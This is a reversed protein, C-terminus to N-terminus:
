QDHLREEELRKKKKLAALRLAEPENAVQGSAVQRLLNNLIAPVYPQIDEVLRDDYNLDRTHIPIGDSVDALCEAFEYSSDPESGDRGSGVVDAGAIIGLQMIAEHLEHSRRFHGSSAEKRMWKEISAEARARFFHFQMHSRVLWVVREVFAKPYGFRNLLAETMDAGVNDHNYDTLRGKNFGRVGEVGKAIDHCLAAWRLILREEDSKVDELHEEEWSAVADVVALTHNWGDYQHHEPSQPLDVLHKFEPMIPIEEYQGNVLRRCSTEALGSRVLLDLGRYAHRTLLLREIELKVREFSLGKVRELNAEIGKEIDKDWSFNLQGVFRCARFMRLADEQFREESKGITCLIGDHIDKLGGHLDIIQGDKDMVMGNCTFDRRELDFELSTPYEVRSPRHADEGYEESRYTAIEYHFGERKAIIVGFSKGVVDTVDYGAEALVAQVEDPTASTTIDYDRPEVGLKIDRVSGGVIYAEFGQQNLAELIGRALQYQVTQQYGLDIQKKDELNTEGGKGKLREIIKTINMLIQNDTNINYIIYSFRRISM